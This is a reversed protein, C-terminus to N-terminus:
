LLAPTLLETSALITPCEGAPESGKVIDILIALQIFRQYNCASVVVLSLAYSECSRELRMASNM